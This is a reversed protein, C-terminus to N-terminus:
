TQEQPNFARGPLSSRPVFVPLILGLIRSSVHAFGVYAGMRPQHFSRREPNLRFLQRHPQEDGRVRHSERREEKSVGVQADAAEIPGVREFHRRYEVGEQHRNNQEGAAERHKRADERRLGAILSAAQAPHAERHKQPGKEGNEVQPFPRMHDALAPPQEPIRQAPRGVETGAKEADRTEVQHVYNRAHHSEAHHSQSVFAAPQILM